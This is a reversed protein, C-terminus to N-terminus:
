RGFRPDFATALLNQQTAVPNPVIENNNDHNARYIDADLRIVRRQLRISSEVLEVFRDPLEQWGEGETQTHVQDLKVNQKETQAQEPSMEGEVVARQLLLWSALQMLRTTLRMSETGYISQAAESLHKASDRGESDLFSATEEVLEMGYAFLENFKDARTFHKALNVPANADEVENGTVNDHGTASM